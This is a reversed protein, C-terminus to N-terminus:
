LGQGGSPLAAPLLADGCDNDAARIYIENEYWVPQDHVGRRLSLDRYRLVDAALTNETEKGDFRCEDFCRKM